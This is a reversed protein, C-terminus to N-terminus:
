GITEENRWLNTDHQSSACETKERSTKTLQRIRKKAKVRDGLCNETPQKRFNQFQKQFTKAQIVTEMSSRVAYERCGLQKLISYMEGIDQKQMTEECKTRGM